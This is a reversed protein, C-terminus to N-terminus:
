LGCGDIVKFSQIGRIFSELLWLLYTVGKVEVEELWYKLKKEKMWGIEPGIRGFESEIQSDGKGSFICIVLKVVKRSANVTWM